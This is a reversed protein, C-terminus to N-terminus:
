HGDTKRAACTQGGSSVAARHPPSSPPAPCPPVRGCEDLVDAVDTAVRLGDVHEAVATTRTDDVDVAAVLKLRDALVDFRRLHARSM